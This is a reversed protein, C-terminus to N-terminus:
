PAALLGLPGHIPRTGITTDTGPITIDAEVLFSLRRDALPEGATNRIEFWVTDAPSRALARLRAVPVASGNRTIDWRGVTTKVLLARVQRLQTDAADSHLDAETVAIDIRNPRVYAVGSLHEPAAQGNSDARFPVVRPPTSTNPASNLPRHACAAFLTPALLALVISRSM